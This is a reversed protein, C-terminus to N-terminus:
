RILSAIKQSLNQLDKGDRLDGVNCKELERADITKNHSLTLWLVALAATRRNADRFLHSLIMQSYLHFAAQAVDGNGAEQMAEGLIDRAVVIPNNLINFHHTQGSPITVAASELRWPDQPKGTLMQNLIALESTNLIKPGGAAQEVYAVGHLFKQEELQKQLLHSPSVEAM